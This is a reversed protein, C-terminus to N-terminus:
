ILKIDVLIKSLNGQVALNQVALTVGLSLVQLNGKQELNRITEESLFGNWEFNINSSQNTPLGWSDIALPRDAIANTTQFGVLSGVGNEGSYSNICFLGMNLRDNSYFLQTFTIDTPPIIPEQIVEVPLTEPNPLGWKRDTDINRTNMRQVSSEWKNPNSFEKTSAAKEELESNFSSILNGNLRTTAGFNQGKLRTTRAELADIKADFFTSNPDFKSPSIQREEVYKGSPDNNFFPANESLRDSYADLNAGFEYSNLNQSGFYDNYSYSNVLYNSDRHVAWDNLQVELLQSFFTIQTM